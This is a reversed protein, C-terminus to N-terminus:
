ARPRIDVYSEEEVVAGRYPLTRTTRAQQSTSRPPTPLTSGKNRTSRPQEHQIVEYSEEEEIQNISPKKHSQGVKKNRSRDSQKKLQSHINLSCLHLLNLCM